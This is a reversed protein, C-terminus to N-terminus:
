TGDTDASSQAVSESDASRCLDSPCSVGERRVSGGRGDIVLASGGITTGFALHLARGSGGASFGASKTAFRGPGFLLAGNVRTIKLEHRFSYSM